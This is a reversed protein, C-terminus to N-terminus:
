RRSLTVRLQNSEGTDEGPLAEHDHNRVKVPERHKTQTALLDVLDLGREGLETAPAGRHGHGPETKARPRGEDGGRLRIAEGPHAAEASVRIEAVHDDVEGAPDVHELVMPVRPPDLLVVAPLQRRQQRRENLVLGVTLAERPDRRAPQGVWIPLAWTQVGTVLDDRIGDQAQLFSPF